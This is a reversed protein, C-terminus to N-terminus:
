GMFGNNSARTWQGDRCDRSYQAVSQRIISGMLNQLVTASRFAVLTGSLSSIEGVGGLAGLGKQAPRAM